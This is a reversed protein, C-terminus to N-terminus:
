MVVTHPCNVCKGLNDRSCRNLQEVVCRHFDTILRRVRSNRLSELTTSDIEGGRADVTAHHLCCVEM